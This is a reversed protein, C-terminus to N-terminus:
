EPRDKLYDDETLKFSGPFLKLNSFNVTDKEGSGRGKKHIELGRSYKAMLEKKLAKDLRGKEDLKRYSTLLELMFLERARHVIVKDPCDEFHERRALSGDFASRYDTDESMNRKIGESRVLYFYLPLHTVAIRDCAEVPKYLQTDDSFIRGYELTIGEFVEKRFIKGAFLRYNRDRRLLQRRLFENPSIIETEFDDELYLFEEDEGWHFIRYSCAGMPCGTEELMGIMYEVYGPVIRDDSDVFCVYEGKAESVTWEVTRIFDKETSGFSRICRIRRDEAACKEVTEQPYDRTFVPLIELDTHTQAIVSKICKNLYQRSDRVPIIVSVSM